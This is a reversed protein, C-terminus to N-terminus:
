PCPALRAELLLVLIVAKGKLLVDGVLLGEKAGKITMPGVTHLDSRWPGTAIPAHQSDRVRSCPKLCSRPLQMDMWLCTQCVLKCVLRHCSVPVLHSQAEYLVVIALVTEWDCGFQVM